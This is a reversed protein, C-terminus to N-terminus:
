LLTKWYQKFFFAYCSICSVDHYVGAIAEEAVIVVCVRLDSIFKWLIIHMSCQWKRNYVTKNKKM